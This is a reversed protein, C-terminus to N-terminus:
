GLKVASIRYINKRKVLVISLTRDDATASRLIRIASNKELTFVQWQNEKVTGAHELLLQLQEKVPDSNREFKAIARDNKSMTFFKELSRFDKRKGAGALKKRINELARDNENSVPVEAPIYQSVDEKKSCGLWLVTCFVAILFSLFIIQKKM